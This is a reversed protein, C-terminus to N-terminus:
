AQSNYYSQINNSQTSPGNIQSSYGMYYGNGPSNIGYNWTGGSIHVVTAFVVIASSVIISLTLMPIIIMKKLKMMKEEKIVQPAHMIIDIRWLNTYDELINYTKYYQVYLYNPRTGVYIDYLTLLWPRDPVLLLASLGQNSFFDM